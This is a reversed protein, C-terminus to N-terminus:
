YTKRLIKYINRDNVDKLGCWEVLKPTIRRKCVVMDSLDDYLSILNNSKPFPHMPIKQGAAYVENKVLKGDVIEVRGVKVDQNYVDCCFTVLEPSKM